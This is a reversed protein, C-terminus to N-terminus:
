YKISDTQALTSNPHLMVVELITLAMLGLLAIVQQIFKLFM